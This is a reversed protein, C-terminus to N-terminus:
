ANQKGLYQAFNVGITYKLLGDKLWSKRVIYVTPLEGIEAMIDGIQILEHTNINAARMPRDITYTRRDDEDDIWATVIVNPPREQLEISYKWKTNALHVDLIAKVSNLLISTEHVIQKWSM